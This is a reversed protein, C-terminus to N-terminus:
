SGDHGLHGGAEKTKQGDDEGTDAGGGDGSGGLKLLGGARKLISGPDLPIINQTGETSGKGPAGVDGGPNLTLIAFLYIERKIPQDAPNPDRNPITYM